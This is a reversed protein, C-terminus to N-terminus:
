TTSIRRHDETMALITVRNKSVKQIKCGLPMSPLSRGQALANVWSRSIGLLRAVEDRGLDDAWAAFVTASRPRGPKGGRKRM